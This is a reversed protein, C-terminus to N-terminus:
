ITAPSPAARRWTRRSTTPSSASGASWRTSTAPAPRSSRTSGIRFRDGDSDPVGLMHAIVRVPLHQAYDVAADCRGKDIFADILENCVARAKPILKDIAQPTFPPLLVM